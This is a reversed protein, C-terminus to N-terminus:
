LANPNAIVYRDALSVLVAASAWRDVSGTTHNEGRGDHLLVVAVGEPTAPVVAHDVLPDAALGDTASEELAEVAAPTIGASWDSGQADWGLATLGLSNAFGDLAPRSQGYPARWWRVPGPGTLEVLLERTRHIQGMQHASDLTLIHPHDWSHVGLQHGEGATRRVLEPHMQAHEGTVAFVGHLGKWKLVDLMRATWVPDPGDDFTLLLPVHTAPPPAFRVPTHTM